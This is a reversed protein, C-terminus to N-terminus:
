ASKFNIPLASLVARVTAGFLKNKDQQEQPLEWYPVICPHQKKEIDKAPGYVWGDDEKIKLWNNHSQEASVFPQKAIARVGSIEMDRQWEPAENWPLQSTDGLKQCYARNAEHACQAALLIVDESYEIERPKSMVPSPIDGIVTPPFYDKQM